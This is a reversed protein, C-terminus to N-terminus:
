TRSDPAAPATRRRSQPPRLRLAPGPDPSSTERLPRRPAIQQLRERLLAPKVDRRKVVDFVFRVARDISENRLFAGARRRRHSFGRDRRRFREIRWAGADERGVGLEPRAEEDLDDAAAGVEAAEAPGAVVVQRDARKRGIANELPRALRARVCLVGAEHRDRQAVMGSISRMRVPSASM